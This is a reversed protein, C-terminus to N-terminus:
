NANTNLTETTSRRRSFLTLLSIIMSTVPPTRVQQVIFDAYPQGGVLFPTGNTAEFSAMAEALEADIKPLLKNVRRRDKEEILLSPGKAKLL